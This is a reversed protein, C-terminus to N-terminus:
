AETVNSPELQAALKKYHALIKEYPIKKHRQSGRQRGKYIEDWPTGPLHTMQSLDVATRSSYKKWVWELGKRVRDDDIRRPLESRVIGNARIYSDTTDEGVEDSIEVRMGGPWLIPRAGWHKFEQYVSPVVPGYRWAEVPEDFLKRGLVAAIWGYALYTLKILKLITLPRREEISKGVFFNAVRVPDYRCGDENPM